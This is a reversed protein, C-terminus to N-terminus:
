RSEPVTAKEIRDGQELRDAVDMGEIVEGFVTYGGDLHPQPALTLFFQSGGTDPGSLAMGVAGRVYRHRNIEDRIAYGPGGSGDGRPDGGQAVFDPVVRHFALGDFFGQRALQMTNLCTLPAEACFLRIRVTGRATALDVEHEGATQQLVDRYYSLDKDTAAGVPPRAEGLEVLADAAQRRVLFEPHSTAIAQLRQVSVARDAPGAKAAYAGLARVVALQADNLRDAATRQLSEALHPLGLTGSLAELATARVIPDPDALATRAVATSDDSKIQLRADIAAARVSASEDKLLRDLAGVNGMKGAAEAARARLVPASARAALDVLTAARPDKGEALALLAVERQRPAVTTSAAREALAAGLTEDLLWASSAELATIAVGPRQDDFLERLRPKWDAPAAIKGSGLLRQASRLAQIVPGAVADDLLPRLRALDAAEGVLGLARASWGRVFPDGDALLLRLQPAAKPQPERALAYAAQAHLDRDLTKLGDVALEVVAPTKFRFLFPLLRRARQDDGLPRLAADVAQVDAGIKGLAEVALGGTEADPDAAARLLAPQSAKEALEGLAFAAARRVAPEADLLLVELTPRGAPEGIRGLAVAVMERLAADGGAFRDIMAADATRRDTMLLLLAREEAHAIAAPAPASTGTAVPPLSACAALLAAALGLAGVSLSALRNM